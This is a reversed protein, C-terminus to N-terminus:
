KLDPQLPESLEYPLTPLGFSSDMEYPLIGQAGEEEGNM